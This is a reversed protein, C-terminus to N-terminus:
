RAPKMTMAESTAVDEGNAEQEHLFRGGRLFALTERITRPMMQMTIHPYPVVLFDSMGDLRTEEVIVIGDNDGGLLPNLGGPKGTGGAIVAFPIPPTGARSAYGANGTRLNQGAPGFLTRFVRWDGFFDAMAAGRNPTGIFVARRANPPHHRSLYARIVLGGMSHGVFYTDRGAFPRTARELGDAIVPISYRRSDYGWNVVRFGERKLALELPLMDLPGKGLGHLLFAVPKSTGDDSARLGVPSAIGPFACVLFLVLLRFRAPVTRSM